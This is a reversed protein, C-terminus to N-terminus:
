VDRGKLYSSWFIRRHSWRFIMTKFGKINFLINPFSDIVDCIIQFKSCYQFLLPHRDNNRIHVVESNPHEPARGECCGAAGVLAEGRSGVRKCRCNDFNSNKEIQRRPKVGPGAGEVMERSPAEGRSGCGRGNGEVIDEGMKLIVFNRFNKAGVPVLFPVVENRSNKQPSSRSPWRM